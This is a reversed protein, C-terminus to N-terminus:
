SSASAPQGPEPSPQITGALVGQVFSPIQTWDGAYIWLGNPSTDPTLYDRLTAFTVGDETFGPAALALALQEARTLDTAVAKRRQRVLTPLTPAIRRDRARDLMGRLVLHQRVVRGDDSDQNRTRVFVLADTGNLHLPGAPFHVATTGYDQTPYAPDSVDYPNVVDVGGLADVIEVFGGYEAVVVRDATVGFNQEVTARVLAAGGRFAGGAASTGFDYARTIKDYGYGPISVWLDYSVSVARVTRNPVDVRAILLVDTNRPDGPHWNDTGGVIVTLTGLQATPTATQAGVRRPLGTLLGAALWGVLRRRSLRHAVGAGDTMPEDRFPM